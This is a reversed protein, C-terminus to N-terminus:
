IPAWWFHAKHLWLTLPAQLATSGLEAPAFSWVEQQAPDLVVISLRFELAACVLIKENALGM